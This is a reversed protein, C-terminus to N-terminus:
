GSARQQGKLTAEPIYTILTRQKGGLIYKFTFIMGGNKALFADVPVGSPHEPLRYILSFRTGPPVTGGSSQQEHLSLVLEIDDSSKDPKVIARIQTLPLDSMNIGDIFLGTVIVGIGSDSLAM